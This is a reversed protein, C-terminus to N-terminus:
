GRRRGTSALSFAIGDEVAIDSNSEVLVTELLAACRDACQRAAYSADDTQRRVLTEHEIRERHQEQRHEDERENSPLMALKKGTEIMHEDVTEEVSQECVYEEPRKEVSHNM